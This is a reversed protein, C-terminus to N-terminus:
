KLDEKLKDLDSKTAVGLEDIVEKLASKFQEKIRIEEEKGKAEISDLFSKADDTKIKGEDQLKKVEAEVREKLVVAAGISTYLLDKFM